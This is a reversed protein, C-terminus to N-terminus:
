RQKINYALTVRPIDSKHKDVCHLLYSRFVVCRGPITDYQIIVNPNNFFGEYTISQQDRFSSRFWLKSESENMFYVCSIISPCHDHFEQYDGREYVNFWGETDKYEFQMKTESMYDHVCSFVFDNISHFEPKDLVDYKLNSTNYTDNSIWGAGGTEVKSKIDLCHSSIDVHNPNDYCGIQTPWWNEIM